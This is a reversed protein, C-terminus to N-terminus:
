LPYYQRFLQNPDWRKKLARLKDLNGGLAQEVEQRTEPLGPAIEVCYTGAVYPGLQRATQRVWDLCAQGKQESGIWGGIVPCNWEFSRNWFATASAAVDAVAGGCHQLDIRCSSTPAARIAEVLKAAAAADLSKLFSSKKWTFLRQEPAPGSPPAETDFGSRAPVDMPPMAAYAHIEGRQLVPQTGSRRILTQTLDRVRNAGDKGDGAHVIYAFLLAVDPGGPPFGLVASATTDRPLAQALELFDPLADLAMLLREAYVRTPSTHVRFTASTVVGLHPGGGRVAWWLDADEGTSEESLELAQQWVM